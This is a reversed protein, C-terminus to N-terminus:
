LKNYQFENSEIISENSNKDLLKNRTEPLTSSAITAIMVVIALVLCIQQNNAPSDILFPVFFATIRAMSNCVSHGTARIHTPYLEPTIVWTANSAGMLTSRAIFACALLIYQSSSFSIILISIAAALYIYTQTRNRGWTDILLTALLTGLLESAANITIALYDFSCPGGITSNNSFVKAVFLIIGNYTFGFSAWILILPLTIKLMPKSILHKWHSESIQVNRNGSDCSLSFPSIIVNNCAAIDLIVREAEGVKRQSILWRPSEPLYFYALFLSITVPIVTIFTLIRWGSVSLLVWALGAVFLSGITWFYEVYVLYRGRHSLPMFEALLDSIVFLGGVGFGVLSRCLCLVVFSTAFASMFGFIVIISCGFMFSSRRGYSDAIKGWCLSGLLEGIFVVSSILATQSSSLNWDIGVCISLFSLLSFEMSDAM